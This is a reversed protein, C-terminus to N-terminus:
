LYRLKPAFRAALSQSFIWEFDERTFGFADAAQRYEGVMSCDFAGPDDTNLSFSLRRERALRIPHKGLDTVAETRLNSTLCFEIHIGAASIRELLGEDQFASIAHGLRDPAAHELTDWVSEPGSHEGAHVEIGLGADRWRRFWPAFRALSEGIEIGVLAVGCILEKRRLELFLATDRELAEVSLTRPVVLLFEIQVRGSEMEFAWERWRHFASLLADKERPFMAPSLMIEAYVVHQSAFAQVQAALVPRMFEPGATQYPKLAEIWSQFSALSSVPWLPDLAEPPALSRGGDREIRRLLAPSIVGLLHCHLEAKPLERWDSM